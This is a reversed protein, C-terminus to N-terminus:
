RGFFEETRQPTWGLETLRAIDATLIPHTLPDSGGVEADLWDAGLATVMDAVRRAVGSGIPIEGTLRHELSCAIAAGVDSAHVFDHARVASRLRVPEGRDRAALAQAVLAPRRHVEDFVYFPRLWGIDGAEIADSCERRLDAKARTYLDPSEDEADVVSGTLWLRADNERCARLLELSASVWQTNSPSNRYDAAGSASWALHVVLDPRLERVLTAANGSVLLNTDTQRVAVTAISSSQLHRLVWSGILGGAGTILATAAM